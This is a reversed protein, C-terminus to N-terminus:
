ATRVVEPRPRPRVDVASLRKAAVRPLRHRRTGARFRGRAASAIVTPRVQVLIVLAIDHRGTGQCSADPLLPILCHIYQGQPSRAMALGIHSRSAPLHQVQLNHWPCTNHSSQVRTSRLLPPPPPHNLSPEIRPLNWWSLRAQGRKPQLTQPATFCVKPAKAQYCPMGCNRTRNVVSLNRCASRPCTLCATCSGTAM